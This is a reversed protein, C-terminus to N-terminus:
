IMILAMSILFHVAVGIIVSVGLNEWLRYSFFVFALAMLGIGLNQIQLPFSVLSTIFLASLLATASYTLIEEQERTKEIKKSFHLPLFRTLYTAIAVSFIILYEIM